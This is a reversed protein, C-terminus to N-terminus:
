DKKEAELLIKWQRIQALERIHLILWPDAAFATLIEDEDAADFVILVEDEGEGIPGGLLIFGDATWQDMLAAHEDWHAQSRMPEKANWGSGKKLTVAFLERM